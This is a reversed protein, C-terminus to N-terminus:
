STGIAGLLFALNVVLLAGYFYRLTVSFAAKTMTVERLYPGIDMSFPEVRSDHIRVADYLHRFLQEQHLYYADLLWFVILPIFATASMRWSLNEALIVFFAGAITLAWGKILFSSTGLRTIVAQILELHKVRDADIETGSVAVTDRMDGARAM